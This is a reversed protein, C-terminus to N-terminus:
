ESCIRFSGKKMFDILEINVDTGDLAFALYVADDQIVVQNCKDTYNGDWRAAEDKSIM